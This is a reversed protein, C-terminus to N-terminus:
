LGHEDIAVERPARAFRYGTWLLGVAFLMPLTTTLQLALPTTHARIALTFGVAAFGVLAIGGAFFVWAKSSLDSSLKYVQPTDPPPNPPPNMADLTVENSLAAFAKEESAM